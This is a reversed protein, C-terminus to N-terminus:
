TIRNSLFNRASILVETGANDRFDTKYEIKAM